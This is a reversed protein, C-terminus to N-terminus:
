EYFAPSKKLSDFLPKDHEIWLTAKTKELINDIRVFSHISERKANWIPIGYNERNKQFHYLDGSIIIPGTKALDVWLVQHGPSHGPAFLIVVSGDGFVDHDGHLKVTKSDKLNAYDKPIFGLQEAQDSFAITHENEQILWTSQDFYNANGAHDVHLHSLALYDVSAPDVGIEQLQSKLTKPVSLNFAGDYYELGDKMENFADPLGGDWFLTGKPHKILYCPVAMDMAVGKDVAPNFISIDRAQVLGCDFVYLKLATSGAPRVDLKKIAPAANAAGAAITVTLVLGALSNMILSKMISRENHNLGHRHSLQDAAGNM